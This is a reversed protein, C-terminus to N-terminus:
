NSNVVRKFFSNAVIGCTIKVLGEPEGAESKSQGSIQPSRTLILRPSHLVSLSCTIRKEFHQVTYTFGQSNIIVPHLNNHYIVIVKFTCFM